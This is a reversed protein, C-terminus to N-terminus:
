ANPLERQVIRGWLSSTPYLPLGRNYCDRLLGAVVLAHSADYNQRSSLYLVEELLEQMTDIMSAFERHTSPRVPFGPCNANRTPNVRSAPCLTEFGPRGLYDPVPPFGLRLAKKM